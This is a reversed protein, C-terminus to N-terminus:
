INWECNKISCLGWFFFMNFCSLSIAEKSGEQQKGIFSVSNTFVWYGIWMWKILQVSHILFIFFRGFRIFFLFLHISFLACVCCVQYDSWDISRHDILEEGWFGGLGISIHFIWFDSCLWYALSSYKSIHWDVFVVASELVALCESGRLFVPKRRRKNSHIGDRHPRVGRPWAVNYFIRNDNSYLIISMHKKKKRFGSRQDEPDKWVGFKFNWCKNKKIIKILNSSPLTM